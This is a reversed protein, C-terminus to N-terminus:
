GKSLILGILILLLGIIIIGFSIYSPIFVIWWSIDILKFLKLIILVIQIVGLCGVGQSKKSNM